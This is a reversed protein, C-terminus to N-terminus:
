EDDHMYGISYVQILFGVGTIILLMLSSLPDILWGVNASFKGVGIWQYVVVDFFRQDEPRALLQVFLFLSIIFSILIVGCAVFTTVVHSLKKVRASIILFGLLPLMPVLSILSNVSVM